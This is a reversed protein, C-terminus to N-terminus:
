LDLSSLFSIHQLDISFFIPIGVDTLYQRLPSKAYVSMLTKLRKNMEFWPYQIRNHLRYKRGYYGRAHVGRGDRRRTLYVKNIMCLNGKM